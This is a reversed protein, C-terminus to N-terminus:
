NCYCFRIRGNLFKIKLRGLRNYEYYYDPNLTASSLVNGYIKKLIVYYDSQLMWIRSKAGRTSVVMGYKLSDDMIWINDLRYHYYGNYKIRMSSSDHKEEIDWIWKNYYTDIDLFFSKNGSYFTLTPSYSKSKDLFIEFENIILKGAKATDISIEKAGSKILVTNKHLRITVFSDTYSNRRYPNLIKFSRDKESYELLSDCTKFGQFHNHNFNLQFTGDNYCRLKLQKNHCIQPNILSVQTYCHNFVLTAILVLLYKLIIM